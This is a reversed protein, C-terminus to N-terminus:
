AKTLTRNHISTGSALCVMESFRALAPLLSALAERQDDVGDLVLVFKDKRVLLRQLHAVLANINECRTYVARDLSTQSETSLCDFCGAVIRELLHRGTICEQSRVIVHSVGSTALVAETISSKGTAELGHIVIAPPSPAQPSVLCTLQRIQEDRCHLSDLVSAVPATYSFSMPGANSTRRHTASARMQVNSADVRLSTKARGSLLM